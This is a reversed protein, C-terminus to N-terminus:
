KDGKKGNCTKCLIQLNDLITKGGNNLAKIHDVHFPIKTKATMGCISCKYEGNATMAKAFTEDRLKKEIEPSHKRIESLSMDEIAIRGPIVNETDDYISPNTLKM